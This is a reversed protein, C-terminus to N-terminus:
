KVDLEYREMVLRVNHFFYAKGAEQKKTNYDKRCLSSKGDGLPLHVLLMRQGCCQESGNQVNAM